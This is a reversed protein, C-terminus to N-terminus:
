SPWPRSTSPAVACTRTPSEVIVLLAVPTPTVLPTRCDNLFLWIVPFVALPVGIAATGLPGNFQDNRVPISVPDRQYSRLLRWKGTMPSAKGAKFRRTVNQTNKTPKGANADQDRTYGGPHEVLANTTRQDSIEAYGDRGLLRSM